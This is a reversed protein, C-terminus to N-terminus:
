RGPAAASHAGLDLAVRGEAGVNVGVNEGIEAVEVQVEVAGGLHRQALGHDEVAVGAEDLDGGGEVGGVVVVRVDGQVVVLAVAGLHEAEGAHALVLEHQFGERVDGGAGFVGQKRQLVRLQVLLDDVGDVAGAFAVAPFVHLRVASRNFDPVLGLADDPEM